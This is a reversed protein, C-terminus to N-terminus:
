FFTIKFINKTQFYVLIIYINKIKTFNILILVFFNLIKCFKLEIGAVFMRQFHTAVFM